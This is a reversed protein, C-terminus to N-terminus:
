VFFYDSLHVAANDTFTITEHATGGNYDIQWQNTTGVEHFTAGAGYGVFKLADGQLAGQGDFDTITDGNAQGAHFVFTDNGGNGVIVIGGCQASSGEAGSAENVNM